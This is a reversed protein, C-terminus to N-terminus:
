FLQNFQDGLLLNGDTSFRRFHTQAKKREDTLGASDEFWLESQPLQLSALKDALKQYLINPDAFFRYPPCVGTLWGRDRRVAGFGCDEPMTIVYRVQCDPMTSALAVQGAISVVNESIRIPVKRRRLEEFHTLMSVVYEGDTGKKKGQASYDKCVSGSVDLDVSPVECKKGHCKCHAKSVVKMTSVTKLKQPFSEQWIKDPIEALDTVETFFHLARSKPTAAFRSRFFKYSDGCSDCAYRAHFSSPVLPEIIKIAEEVSGLGTFRTGFDLTNGEWLVPRHGHRRAEEAMAKAEGVIARVNQFAQKLSQPQCTKLDRRKLQNVHLDLPLPGACPDRAAHKNPEITKEVLPGVTEEANALMQFTSTKPDWVEVVRGLHIALLAETKFIRTAEEGHMARVDDLTAPTSGKVEVVAYASRNNRGNKLMIYPKASVTRNFPSDDRFEIKKQGSVVEDFFQRAISLQIM